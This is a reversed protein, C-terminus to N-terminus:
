LFFNISTHRIFAENFLNYLNVLLLSNPHELLKLKLAHMVHFIKRKEKLWEIDYDTVYVDGVENILDFIGNDYLFCIDEKTIHLIILQDDSAEDIDLAEEAVADKPVIIQRPRNGM